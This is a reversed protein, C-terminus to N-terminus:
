FKETLQKQEHKNTLFVERADPRKRLFSRLARELENKEGEDEDLKQLFFSVNLHMMIAETGM